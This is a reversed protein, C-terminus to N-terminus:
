KSIKLGIVPTQYLDNTPYGAYEIYPGDRNTVKLVDIQTSDIRGCYIYGLVEQILVYM